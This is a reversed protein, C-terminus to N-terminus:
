DLVKLKVQAMPMPVMPALHSFGASAIIIKRIAEVSTDLQVTTKYLTVATAKVYNGLGWLKFITGVGIVQSTGSSM